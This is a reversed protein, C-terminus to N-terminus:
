ITHSSTKWTNHLHTRAVASHVEFYRLTPSAQLYYIDKCIIATEVRHAALECAKRPELGARNHGLTQGRYAEIASTEANTLGSFEESRDRGHTQRDAWARTVDDFRKESFLPEDVGSEHGSSGERCTDRARNVKNIWRFDSPCSLAHTNVIAAKTTPLRSHHTAWRVANKRPWTAHNALLPAVGHNTCWDVPKTPDDFERRGCVLPIYAVPEHWIVVNELEGKKM